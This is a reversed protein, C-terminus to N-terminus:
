GMKMECTSEIHYTDGLIVEMLPTITPMDYGVTVIIDGARRDYPKSYTVDIILNDRINDTALEQVRQIVMETNDDAAYTIGYRVSERCITAILLKNSCTWGFEIIGCLFLFLLPLTLALEVIAQGGQECRFTRVAKSITKM